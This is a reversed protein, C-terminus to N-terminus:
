ALLGIPNRCLVYKEVIVSVKPIRYYESVKPEQIIEKIMDSISKKNNQIILM